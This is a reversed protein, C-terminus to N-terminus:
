SSGYFVDEMLKPKLKEEEWFSCVFCFLCFVIMFNVAARSWEPTLHHLFPALCRSLVWHDVCYLMSTSGYCSFVAVMLVPLIGLGWHYHLFCLGPKWFMWPCTWSSPWTYDLFSLHKSNTYKKQFYFCLIVGQGLFSYTMSVCVCEDM